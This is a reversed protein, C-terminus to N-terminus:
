LQSHDLSRLGMYACASLAGGAMGASCPIWAYGWESSGKGSIPLVWHALRPGLDRFPNMAIGTPGGLSLVLVAVLLGVFLASVPPYLLRLEEPIHDAGEGVLLAGTVLILTTVLEVIWNLLPSPVAPRTCFISLKANQDATVAAAQLAQLRRQASGIHCVGLQAEADKLDGAIELAATYIQWSLVIIAQLLGGTECLKPEHQGM